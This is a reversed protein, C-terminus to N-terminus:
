EGLLLMGVLVGGAAIAVGYPVKMQGFPAPPNGNVTVYRSRPRMLAHRAVMAVALVGGAIGMGLLLPLILPPGAWLATATLLKVDGGGALRLSFLAWGVIFTGAAVAAAGVWDVPGPSAAVHAPFLLAIAVCLRNPIVFRRVDSIAAWVLLSMFSMVVLHDVM